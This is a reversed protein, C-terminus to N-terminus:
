SLIWAVLYAGSLVLGAALAVGLLVSVYYDRM